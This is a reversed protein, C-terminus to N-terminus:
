VWWRRSIQRPFNWCGKWSKKRWIMDHQGSGLEYNFIESISVFAVLFTQKVWKESKKEECGLTIVVFSFFFSQDSFLKLFKIYIILL